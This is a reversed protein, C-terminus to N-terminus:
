HALLLPVPCAAIVKATAGGLGLFNTLGGHGYAGMVLLDAGNDRAYALLARGRARGSVAGPDMTDLAADIGHRGLNRLLLAGGVDDPAAGAVLVTVRGAQELFPLAAGAARAAQVSGNWAVVVSSMSRKSPDPPAIMVPRACDYLAAKVTAPSINEADAGPRGILVLSAFRGMMVLRDRTIDEGGTFTAGEIPAILEHFARESERARAKLRSDSLSRLFPMAQAAIDVDHPQDETFHVADVAGGFMAALRAALGFSMAADPGGESIALISKYM